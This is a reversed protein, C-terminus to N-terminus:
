RMGKKRGRSWDTLFWIWVFLTGAVLAGLNWKVSSKILTLRQNQRLAQAQTNVSSVGETLNSALEQKVTELQQLSEIRPASGAQNFQQVLAELEAPTQVNNLQTQVQQIQTQTNEVQAAVQQSLQREIRLGNFIALPIMLWLLVGAALSLWSLGGLLPPEFKFRGSQGGWFLFALAVLPVAVREVIAGFTQFEWAPNMWDPPIFLMVLDIAVLLLLGYGVGRLLLSTRLSQIATDWLTEVKEVVQPTPHPFSGTNDTGQDSKLQNM